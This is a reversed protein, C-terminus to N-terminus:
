GMPSVGRLLGVSCGAGLIGAIGRSEGPILSLCPCDKGGVPFGRLQQFPASKLTGPVLLPFKEWFLCSCMGCASANILMWCDWCRQLTHHERSCTHVRIRVQLAGPFAQCSIPTASDARFSAPFARLKEKAGPAPTEPITGSGPNTRDTGPHSSPFRSKGTSSLFFLLSTPSPPSFGQLSWDTETCHSPFRLQTPSPESCPFKPIVFPTQRIQPTLGPGAVMGLPNRPHGPIFPQFLPSSM